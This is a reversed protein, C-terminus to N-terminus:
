TGGNVILNEKESIYFWVKKWTEFGRTGFQIQEGKYNPWLTDDILYDGNLRHKHCTITLNNLMEKGFHDKVWAAKETYCLLNEISPRTVIHVDFYQQLLNIFWLSEHIPKLNRFFDFQSQPYKVDPNRRLADYFASNYDCITNDLDIDIIKRKEM